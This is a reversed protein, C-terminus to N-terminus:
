ALIKLDVFILGLMILLGLFGYMPLTNENMKFKKMCSTMVDPILFFIAKVFILLGLWALLSDWSWAFNFGTSALILASLTVMAFFLCLVMGDSKMLDKFAKNSGKPDLVMKLYLPSLMAALLTLSM